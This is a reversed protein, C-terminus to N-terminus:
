SQWHGEHGRGGFRCGEQRLFGLDRRGEVSDVVLIGCSELLRLISNYPFLPNPAHHRSQNSFLQALAIVPFADIMQLLTSCQSTLKRGENERGLAIGGAGLSQNQSVLKAEHVFASIQVYLFINQARSPISSERIDRQVAFSHGSLISSHESIQSPLPTPRCICELPEAQHRTSYRPPTRASNSSIEHIALM